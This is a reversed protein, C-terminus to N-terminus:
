PSANELYRSFSCNRCSPNAECWDHHMQILGQQLQFSVRRPPNPLVWTKMRKTIINDPEGPLKEFFDLVREELARNHTRRALALGAPLFVNGVIALIRSAGFIAVPATQTKGNWTYHSAWFGMARPFVEEFMVM